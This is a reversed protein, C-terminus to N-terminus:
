YFNRQFNDSIKIDKFSIKILNDSSKNIAYNIKKNADFVIRLKSAQEDYSLRIKNLSSAFSTDISFIVLFFSTIIAKFFNKNNILKYYIM